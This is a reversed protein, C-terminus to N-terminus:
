MRGLRRAIRAAIQASAQKDKIECMIDLDYGGTLRLFREFARPTIHVAHTGPRAGPQQSSYDAMPPGHRGGWTAAVGRLAEALEPGGNLSHHLNDFVLPVGTAEHIALCDAVSFLRDDNEIALRKRVSAPLHRWASVFRAISAPKDGYVGGVHIQVKHAADLGLADLVASHYELERVSREVIAPNLANILTFQDPHMSMRMGHERIFRGLLRFVGRFERRWDFRCVPHSAFPVLQSGIRFFLLGHELNYALIRQLCNLNGEVTARLREDSYSALRFTSSARCDLHENICAYGIRM